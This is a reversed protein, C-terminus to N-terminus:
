QSTAHAVAELQPFGQLMRKPMSQLVAHFTIALMASGESVEKLMWFVICCHCQPTLLCRLCYTELRMGRGEDSDATFLRSSNSVTLTLRATNTITVHVVAASTIRM